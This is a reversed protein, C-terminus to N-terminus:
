QIRPARRRQRDECGMAARCSLFCSRDKADISGSPCQGTESSHPLVEPRLGCASCGAGFFGRNSSASRLVSRTSLIQRVVMHQLSRNFGGLVGAHRKAFAALLHTYAWTRSCNAISIVVGHRLTEKGGQFTLQNVPPYPFRVGLCTQRDKSPNFGPVVRVPPM